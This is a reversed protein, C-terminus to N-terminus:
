SGRSSGGPLCAGTCKASVAHTCLVPLSPFTGGEGWGVSKSGSWDVKGLAQRELSLHETGGGAAWVGSIMNSKDNEFKDMLPLTKGPYLSDKSSRNQIAAFPVTGDKHRERDREAQRTSM